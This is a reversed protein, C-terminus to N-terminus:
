TASHANLRVKDVMAALAPDHCSESQMFWAFLQPDDCALLRQFTAKDALTLHEYHHKVFPQLLFDLELMGRRCAWYLRSIDMLKEM